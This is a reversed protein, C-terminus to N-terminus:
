KCAGVLWIPGLFRDEFSLNLWFAGVGGDLM